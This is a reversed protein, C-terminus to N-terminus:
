KSTFQWKGSILHSYKEHLWYVLLAILFGTLMGSTVDKLFHQVLYMRSVAVFIAIVLCLFKLGKNRIFLALLTYFAFASITHGSPFSTTWGDHLVVDPIYNPLDPQKLLDNFYRVPREHEFFQKLVGSVGLVLVANIAIALCKSYAVFVLVFGAIVYVYGEGFYTWFVFFFNRFETRNDAFFLIVDGKEVVGFLLLCAFSWLLLFGTIYGYNERFFDIKINETSTEPPTETEM